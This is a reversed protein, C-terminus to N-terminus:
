RSRRMVSDDHSWSLRDVVDVVGDVGSVRDVLERASSRWPVMVDSVMRNMATEELCSPV